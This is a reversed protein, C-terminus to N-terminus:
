FTQFTIGLHVGAGGVRGSLWARSSGFGQVMGPGVLPWNGLFYVVEPAVELGQGCFAVAFPLGPTLVSPFSPLDQSTLGPCWPPAGAQALEM